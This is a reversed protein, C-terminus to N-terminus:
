SEMKQIAQRISDQASVTIPDATMVDGVATDLPKGAAVVRRLLDRETFVGMLKRADTVLLCGVKNERMLSVADAVSAQRDLTIPRSPQLRSVSDIKLNRALEM